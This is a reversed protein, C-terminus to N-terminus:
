IKNKLRYIITTFLMSNNMRYAIIKALKYLFMAHSNGIPYIIKDLVLGSRRSIELMTSESIWTTHEFNAIVPRNIWASKIHGIFFPNPTSIYLSGTKSLHRSSFKMLGVIDDVHEIVDGAVITEFTRNLNLDSTADAHIAEYGLDQMQAVGHENIDLGVCSQAVENIKKHKWKDSNLYKEDHEYCGIHLTNKSKSVECFYSLLDNKYLESIERLHSRLLTAVNKDLPDATHETWDM